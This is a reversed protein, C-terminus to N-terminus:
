ASERIVLSYPLVFDGKEWPADVPRDAILSVAKQAMADLPQRVTTLSPSLLNALGIDDFGTIALQEPMAIGKAHAVGIAAAAMDDNLAVIADPKEAMDLLQQAALRGSGFTYKTLIIWDERVPVGYHACADRFASTREVSDPHAPHGSILAIRRRGQDVLRKVLDFIPARNDIRVTAMHELPRVTMLAVAPISLQRFYESKDLYEGYPPILILAEAGEKVLEEAAIQTHEPLARPVDRSLLHLGKNAMALAISRVVANVFLNEIRAGFQLFGINGLARGQLRLSTESPKYGLEEIIRQVRERTAESVRGRGHFVNSVTMPSVGAREAVAHINVGTTPKRPRSVIRVKCSADEQTKRAM